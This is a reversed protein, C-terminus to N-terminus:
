TMISILIQMVLIFTVIVVVDKIYFHAGSVESSRAKKYALVDTFLAILVEDSKYSKVDYFFCSAIEM